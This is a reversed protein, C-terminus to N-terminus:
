KAKKRRPKGPAPKAGSVVNVPRGEKAWDWLWKANSESLRVCGHSAYPHHIDGVHFGEATGDFRQFYKMPAGQYTEGKKYGGKGSTRKTGDGAVCHGYKSSCHDKDRQTIKFSGKTTPHTQKGSSIKMTKVPKEGEFATAHQQALDVVIRKGARKPKDKVKDPKRQLPEVEAPPSLETAGSNESISEQYASGPEITGAKAAGDQNDAEDLLAEAEEKSIVIEGELSPDSEYEFKEPAQENESVKSEMESTEKELLESQQPKQEAEEAPQMMLEEGQQITHTLEHALLKKGDSTNPNFKGPAFGIHQGVTFANAGM